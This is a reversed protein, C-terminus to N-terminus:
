TEMPKKFQIAKTIALFLFGFLVYHVAFAADHVPQNKKLLDNSIIFFPIITIAYLFLGTTIWFSPRTNLSQLPKIKFLEWYYLLCPIALLLLELSIIFDPIKKIIVDSDSILLGRYFYYLLSIPFLVIFFPMVKKIFFHDLVRRWYFYFIIYEVSAFLINLGEISFDSVPKNITFAIDTGAFLAFASCTYLFFPLVSPNSKLNKVETVIAIIICLLVFSDLYDSRSSWNLFNEILNHGMNTLITNM